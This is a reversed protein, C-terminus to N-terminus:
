VKRVLADRYVRLSEKGKRLRTLKEVLQSKETAFTICLEKYLRCIRRGTARDAPVALRSIGGLLREAEDTLAAAKESEGSKALRVQEALVDLLLRILMREGDSDASARADRTHQGNGNM